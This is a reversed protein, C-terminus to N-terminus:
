ISLLNRFETETLLGNEAGLLAGRINLLYQIKAVNNPQGDYNDAMGNLDSQANFDLPTDLQENIKSLILAKNAIAGSAYLAVAVDLLFVPVREVGEVVDDRIRDYIGAM